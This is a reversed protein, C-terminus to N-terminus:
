RRHGVIRDVLRRMRVVMAASPTVSGSCYTSLRTRSTGVRQAFQERTLGSRNVLSRVDDAVESRENDFAQQRANRIARRLLPGVGYPSAYSLYDKVQRTVEGWPERAIETIIRTWDIVTGREIATVLGEYPWSAVPDAPDADVNRFALTM